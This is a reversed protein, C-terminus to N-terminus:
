FGGPVGLVKYSTIDGPSGPGGATAQIPPYYQLLTKTITYGGITGECVHGHFAAERLVDSPAGAAWANALSAFSFANEGGVKAILKNWEAHSMNESITGLYAHVSSGNRFSVAQLSSGNKVVFIFDVPDNSTQRLMLLNGKGYTIKGNCVNIIGEICDETTVGNLKPVGATTIALVKDVKNFNFFNQATKTVTRGLKYADTAQMNFTASGYLNKDSVDLPNLTTKIQQTQSKYGPASVIVNFKTGNVAGTYMFRLEYCKYSQKYIKTSNIKTGNVSKVKIEPNITNDSAYEYNVKVGIEQSGGTTSLDAAAAATGSIALAFLVSFVLLVM